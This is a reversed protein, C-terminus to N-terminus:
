GRPIVVGLYGDAAGSSRRDNDVVSRRACPSRYARGCRVGAYAHEAKQAIRAMELAPVDLGYLRAFALGASIELAASSSLGSGLPIDGLFMADFGHPAPRIANLGALVGKVYNSWMRDRSPRPDAAPFVAEEMIDGAWLHAEGDDRPSVAFNTGFNIAASLVYGENYDTHNGLIEVRGPAYAVVQPARGYLTQFKNVLISKVSQGVM